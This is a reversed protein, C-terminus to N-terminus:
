YTINVLQDSQQKAADTAIRDFAPQAELLILAEESLTPEVKPGALAGGGCAGNTHPKEKNIHLM